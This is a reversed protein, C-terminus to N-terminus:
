YNSSRVGQNSRDTKDDHNRAVAVSATLFVCLVGVNVVCKLVLNRRMQPSREGRAVLGTPWRGQKYVARRLGAPTCRDRCFRWRCPGISRKHESLLRMARAANSAVVPQGQIGLLECNFSFGAVLFLTTM